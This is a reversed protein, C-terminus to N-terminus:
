ISDSIRALPFTLIPDFDTSLEEVAMSAKGRDPFIGYMCSGSGSMSVFAGGAALLADRCVALRPYLLAMAPFFDNRFTWLEPSISAFDQVVDDLESELEEVPRFPGILGSARCDDLTQYAKSTPSPFGPNVLVVAYDTRGPLPYITEGRGTVKACASGMFFPVDSGVKAALAKLEGDSIFGPLTRSLIMFVAAADSSGGGLGSGAPIRKEISIRMGPVPELGRSRANKLFLEAAKYATNDEPACGCDCVLEIGASDLFEVTVTDHLSVAQFISAIPHFGDNQRSGVALHLNIKAPAPM